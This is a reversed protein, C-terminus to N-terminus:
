TSIFDFFAAWYVTHVVAPESESNIALVLWSSLVELAAARCGVQQANHFRWPQNLCQYIKRYSNSLIGLNANNQEKQSVQWSVATPSATRTDKPSSPLATHYSIDKPCPAAARHKLHEAQLLESRERRNGAERCKHCIQLAGGWHGRRATLSCQHIQPLDLIKPLWGPKSVTPALLHCCRKAAGAGQLAPLGVPDRPAFSQEQWIGAARNSSTGKRHPDHMGEHRHLPAWLWSSLATWESM